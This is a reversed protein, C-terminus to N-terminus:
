ENVTYTGMPIKEVTDESVELGVYAVVEAGDFDYKSFDDYINNIILTLKGIIVSGVDFSQNGSTADDIVFGNQWIHKNALNLTEGSALAIDAYLLYNREDNKLKEKFSQSINRM